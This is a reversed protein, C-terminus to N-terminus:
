KSSSELLPYYLRSPKTVRRRLAYRTKEARTDQHTSPATTEKPHTIAPTYLDPPHLHSGIVCDTELNDDPSESELNDETASIEGDKDEQDSVTEQM